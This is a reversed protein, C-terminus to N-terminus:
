EPQFAKRRGKQKILKDEDKLNLKFSLRLEGSEELSNYSDGNYVNM